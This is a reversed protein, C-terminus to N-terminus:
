YARRRPAKNAKRTVPQPHPRQQRTPRQVEPARHAGSREALFASLDIKRM